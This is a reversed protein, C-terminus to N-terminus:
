GNISNLESIADPFSVFEIGSKKLYSILWIYWAKCNRFSDTFYFDHFLINLYTIQCKYANEVLRITENKLREFSKFQFKSDGYFLNSDMLHIPFEWMNGTRYPNEFALKTSDFLYGARDLNKLTDFSLNLYHIRIGFSSINTLKKFLEAEDLIESFDQFSLGHIGVTLGKTLVLDIIKAAQKKSYSLNRGRKVSVFFASNIDNELDFAILETVNNFKNHFINKIRGNYENITIIGKFLEISNRLIFKPIFFDILHEISTIHDVDHSVIVKM